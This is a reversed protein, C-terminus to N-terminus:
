ISVHWPSDAQPPQVSAKRDETLPGSLVRVMNLRRTRRSVRAARVVRPRIGVVNLRRNGILCGVPHTWGLM